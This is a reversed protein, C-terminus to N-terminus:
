SDSKEDLVKQIKEAMEKPEVQKMFNRITYPIKKPLTERPYFLL